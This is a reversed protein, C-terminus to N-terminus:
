LKMVSPVDMKLKLKFVLKTHWAFNISQAVDPRTRAVNLVKHAVSKCVGLRIAPIAPVGQFISCRYSMLLM